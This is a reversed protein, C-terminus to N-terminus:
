VLRRDRAQLQALVDLLAESRGRDPRAHAAATVLFAVEPVPDAHLLAQRPMVASSAAQATSLVLWGLKRARGTRARLTVSDHDAARVRGGIGQYIRGAAYIGPRCDVPLAAVGAAGRFYLRDAQALLRRTTRRIGPLPAPDALFAVEDIGEEILWDRPLYLRGARADEGV